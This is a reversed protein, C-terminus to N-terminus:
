TVRSGHFQARVRTVSKAENERANAPGIKGLAASHRTWEAILQARPLVIRRTDRLSTDEGTVEDIRV